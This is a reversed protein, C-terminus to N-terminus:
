VTVTYSSCLYVLSVRNIVTFITYILMLHHKQLPLYHTQQLAFLVAGILTIKTPSFLLCAILSCNHYLIYSVFLYVTLTIVKHVYKSPIIICVHVLSSVCM